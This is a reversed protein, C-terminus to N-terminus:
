VACFLVACCPVVHALCCLVEDKMKYAPLRQRQPQIRRYADSSRTKNWECRLKASLLHNDTIDTNNTRRHEDTVDVDVSSASSKLLQSAINSKTSASRLWSCRLHNLAQALKHQTQQPVCVRQPTQDQLMRTLKLIEDQRAKIKVQAPTLNVHRAVPGIKGLLAEDQEKMRRQRHERWDTKQQQREEWSL